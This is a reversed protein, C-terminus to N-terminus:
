LRWAFLINDKQM